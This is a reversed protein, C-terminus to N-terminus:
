DLHRVAVHDVRPPTDWTSEDDTYTASLRVQINRSDDDDAVPCDDVNVVEVGDVELRLSRYHRSFGQGMQLLFSHPEGWEVDGTWPTESGSAGQDDVCSVLGTGDSKFWLHIQTGLSATDHLSLESEEAGPTLVWEVELRFDNSDMTPSWAKDNGWGTGEPFVLQGDEFSAQLGEDGDWEWTGSAISDESFDDCFVDTGACEFAEDDVPEEEEEDAGDPADECSGHLIAWAPVEDIAEGLLGVDYVLEDESVSFALPGNPVLVTYHDHEGYVADVHQLLLPGTAERTLKVVEVTAKAKNAAGLTLVDGLLFLGSEVVELENSLEDRTMCFITYDEREFLVTPTQVSSEYVATVYDWVPMVFNLLGSAFEADFAKADAQGLEEVSVEALGLVHGEAARVVVTVDSPDAVATVEAQEIPSGDDESAVHVPLELGLEELSLTVNGDADTSGRAYDLAVPDPSSTKCALALMLTM